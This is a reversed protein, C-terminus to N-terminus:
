PVYLFGKSTDRLSQSMKGELLLLPASSVVKLAAFCNLLSRLVAAKNHVSSSLLVLPYSLFASLCQPRESRGLGLLPECVIDISFAFVVDGVVSLVPSM